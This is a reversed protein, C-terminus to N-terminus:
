QENEEDEEAEKKLLEINEKVFKEHCDSCLDDFCDYDFQTMYNGCFDCKM